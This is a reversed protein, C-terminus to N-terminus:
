QLVQSNKVQELKTGSDTVDETPAPHFHKTEIQKELISSAGYTGRIKPLCLSTLPKGV